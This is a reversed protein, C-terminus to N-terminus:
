KLESSNFSGINKDASVSNSKRDSIQNRYYLVRNNNVGTLVLENSSTFSVQYEVGTETYTLVNSSNIQYLRSIAISEPCKLTATGGTASPFNATEGPCIDRTGENYILTWDGTIDGTPSIQNIIDECDSGLFPLSLLLLVTLIRLSIGKYNSKM